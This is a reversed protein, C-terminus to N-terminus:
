HGGTHGPTETDGPPWPECPIAPRQPCHRRPRLAPAPGPLADRGTGASSSISALQTGASGWGAAAARGRRCLGKVGEGGASGGGARLGAGKTPLGQSCQPTQPGWVPVAERRGLWLQPTRDWGKAPSLVEQGDAPGRLRRPRTGRGGCPGQECWSCPTPVGLHPIRPHPYMPLFELPVLSLPMLFLSTLSLLSQVCPAPIGLLVLMGTGKWCGRM